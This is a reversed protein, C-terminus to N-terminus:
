YGLLKLYQDAKKPNSIISSLIKELESKQHKLGIIKASIFKTEKDNTSLINAVTILGNKVHIEAQMEESKNKFIYKPSYGFNWDWLKYKEVVLKEIASIEEDNLNNINNINFYNFLHKQLTLKFENSTPIDPLHNKLNTVNARISQVARDEIQFQEPRIIKELIDLESSFLLTGHHMVRNKFIHASNGSFKKGNITLNNKGEYSADIGLGQLFNLIPTTFKRFDILRERLPESTILTFNINGLDHYVTGGGSIRRIVPINNEGAFRQNIEAITNQHKGVIVSAESQWLMLIDEDRSKLLYEEAAINFYPDFSNKEIYIV